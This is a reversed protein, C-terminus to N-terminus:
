RRSKAASLSLRGAALWVGNCPRAAADLRPRDPAPRARLRDLLSLKMNYLCSQVAKDSKTVTETLDIAIVLASM